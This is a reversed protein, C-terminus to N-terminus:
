MGFHSLCMSWICKGHHASRRGDTQTHSHSHTHAHMQTLTFRLLASCWPFQVRFLQPVQLVIVILGDVLLVVGDKASISSRRKECCLEILFPQDVWLRIQAWWSLLRQREKERVNGWGGVSRREIWAAGGGETKRHFHHAHANLLFTDRQLWQHCRWM